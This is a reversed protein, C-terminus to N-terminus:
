SQGLRAAEEHHQQQVHELVLSREVNCGHPTPVIKYRLRGPDDRLEEGEEDKASRNSCPQVKWGVRCAQGCL